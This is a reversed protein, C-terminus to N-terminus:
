KVTIKLINETQNTIRFRNDFRKGIVWVIKDESCLLWQEEKAIRSYKEDKYFKSLKKVGNMGFPHFYDGLKWKRVTLPFKLSSADAYITNADATETSSVNEIKLQIPIEIEQDDKEIFYIDSRSVSLEQLLLYKRDKLLRHTSSLLEKGTMALMLNIVAQPDVFGYEKFFHYIYTHRPNLNNLAAIDIKMIADEKTFLVTKAREMECELVQATEALYAQTNSFNKLFTPHLEKLLPVIKHRIKNRLYKTEQNSKDERWDIANKKAYALIQEQSFHLLPRSIRNTKEPIGTLGEIGTGRSLNILFTELNDDSHHATVLTPIDNKSMIQDFWDYRLKRAGVQLTVKNLTMYDVTKFKTVHIGVNKNKALNIVFKEDLDSEVDRLQFNCHAISFKLNLASCLHVLVVSDVGGSCALLFHKEKLNSFNTDIHKKFEELM